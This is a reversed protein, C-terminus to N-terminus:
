GGPLALLLSSLVLGEKNVTMEKIILSATECTKIYMGWGVLSLSLSLTECLSNKCEDMSRQTHPHSAALMM